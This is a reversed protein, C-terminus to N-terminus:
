KQKLASKKKMAALLPKWNNAYEDNLGFSNPTHKSKNIRIINKNRLKAKPVIFFTHHDLWYCILFDMSKKELETVEFAKLREYKSTSYMGQRTKVEIKITNHTSLNMLIIDCGAEELNKFAKWKTSHIHTFIYFLVANEGIDKLLERLNQPLTKKTKAM